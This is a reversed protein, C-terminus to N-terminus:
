GNAASYILMDTDLTFIISKRYECFLNPMYCGVFVAFNNIIISSMLICENM